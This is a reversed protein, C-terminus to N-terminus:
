KKVPKWPGGLDAMMKTLIAAEAKISAIYMELKLQIDLGNRQLVEGVRVFANNIAAIANPNTARAYVEDIANISTLANNYNTKIEDLQKNKAYIEYKIDELRNEIFANRKQVQESLLNRREGEKVKEIVRKPDLSIGHMTRFLDTVLSDAPLPISRFKSEAMSIQTRKVGLFTAFEQQTLGFHLRVEKTMICLYVFTDFSFACKSKVCVIQCM